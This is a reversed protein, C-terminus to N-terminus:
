SHAVMAVGGIIVAIGAIRLPTITEGFFHWAAFAGVVYGISLMPYALSVPVRSLTFIWVLVSLVCSALGAIIYFETGIRWAMGIYNGDTVALSGLANTGAKLLLQSATNLLVAILILVFNALSM